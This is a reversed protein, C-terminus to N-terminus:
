SKFLFFLLFCIKYLLVFSDYDCIMVAHEWPAKIRTPKEDHSDTTSVEGGLVMAREKKNSKNNNRKNSPELSGGVAASSAEDNESGESDSM